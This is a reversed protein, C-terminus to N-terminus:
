SLNAVELNALILGAVLFGVLASSIEESPYLRLLGLKERENEVCEDEHLNEVLEVGSLKFISFEVWERSDERVNWEDTDDEQCDNDLQGHNFKSSLHDLAPREIHM